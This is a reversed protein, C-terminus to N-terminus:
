AQAVEPRAELPAEVVAEREIENERVLWLAAV